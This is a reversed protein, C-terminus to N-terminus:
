NRKEGNRGRDFGGNFLLYVYSSLCVLMIYFHQHMRIFCFM